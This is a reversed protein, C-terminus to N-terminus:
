GLAASHNPPLAAEGLLRPSPIPTQPGSVYPCRCMGQNKTWVPPTAALGGRPTPLPTTKLLCSSRGPKPVLHFTKKPEASSSIGILWLILCHLAKNLNACRPLTGQDASCASFTARFCPIHCPKICWIRTPEGPPSPIPRRSCLPLGDNTTGRPSLSGPPYGRGDQCKSTPM